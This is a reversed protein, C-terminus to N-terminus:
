SEFILHNFVEQSKTAQEWKEAWDMNNFVGMFVKPKSLLTMSPIMGHKTKIKVINVGIKQLPNETGVELMKDFVQNGEYSLQVDIDNDYRKCAIRVQFSDYEVTVEEKTSRDVNSVLAVISGIGCFATSPIQYAGLSIRKSSLDEAIVLFGPTNKPGKSNPLTSEHSFLLSVNTETKMVLYLDECVNDLKSNSPMLVPFNNKLKETGCYFGKILGSDQLGVVLSNTLALFTVLTAVKM